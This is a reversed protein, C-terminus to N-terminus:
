SITQSKLAFAPMQLADPGRQQSLSPTRFHASPPKSLPTSSAGTDNLSYARYRHGHQFQRCGCRLLKLFAMRFTRNVSTYIIPNITSSVYGLWLFVAEVYPNVYISRSLGNSINLTFFPAWCVVFALFVLGLVQSAKQEATLATSPPATPRRSVESAATLRLTLPFRRTERSISEPTQVAVDRTSIRYGNTLPALRLEAPEGRGSSARQRLAVSRGVHRHRLTAGSRCKQRLLWTTLSYTIVMIVMPIFFALLSGVVFFVRNNIACVKPNPMINDLNVIGMITVISSIGLSLLWVLVVRTVVQRFTNRPQNKLPDRIGLYRGLSIFSMHWISATCALVDCTVYFNCWAANLPWENLLGAVLGFPMVICSVLLDAVALSLLFYNTVNQLAKELCIALCVLVNGVIGAVIFLLVPLYTLNLGAPASPLVDTEPGDVDVGDSLNVALTAM